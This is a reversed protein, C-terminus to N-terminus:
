GDAPADYRGRYQRAGSDDRTWWITLRGGKQWESAWRRLNRESARGNFAKALSNDQLCFGRLGDTTEVTLWLTWLQRAGPAVEPRGHKDLRMAVLPNTKITGAHPV